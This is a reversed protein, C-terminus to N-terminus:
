WQDQLNLIYQKYKQEYTKNLKINEKYLVDSFKAKLTKYSGPKNKNRNIIDKATEAKRQNDTKRQREANEAELLRVLIKDQRKILNETLNNNILDNPNQELLKNIQNLQRVADPHLDGNMLESLKQRFKEYQAISKAIEKNLQKSGKGGKGQKKLESIMRQLQQKLSEMSKQMQSIKSGPKAGPKNCSSNSQNPAKMQNVIAQILESILLDLNNASTMVFQQTTAAQRYNGNKLQEETRELKMKLNGLEDTIVNALQPIRQSIAFLSDSVVEFSEKLEHQKRILENTKSDRYYNLKRFQKMLNEQEMSFININEALQQLATLDETMQQMQQSKMMAQMQEALQKMNQANQRQQKSAKKNKGSQMQQKSQQMGQKIQEKQETFDDLKYPHQLESNKQKTEEYKKMADEFEKNLKEQEKLLKNKEEESKGAKETKQALEEQKKALEKLQESVKEVNKEEEFRKLIELNRDLEKSMEDFNTEAERAKEEFKKDENQQLLKQLEDLLKKMEDDMLKDMLKEIEKQKQVIDKQQQSLSNVLNNTQKYMRNIEEINRKLEQQKKNINELIKTKEWKSLNQTIQNQRLKEMERNIDNILNQSTLMKKEIEKQTATEISDLQKTDPKVFAFMISKTSKSGNIKDNDWVEFYYEVKKANAPLSSFDFSYEFSQPNLNKAIPLSITDGYNDYTYNFTLKEFGYDDKILGAFYYVTPKLSDTYQKVKIQPYKDPIVNIKYTAAKQNKIYRNFFYLNYNTTRKIQKEFTFINNGNKVATFKTSDFNFIVSDTDFLKLEWKIKSGEPVTLDGNGDEVSNKIGTYAPPYIYVKLSSLVPAPIVSIHYPKSYYNGSVFRFNIDNNLNHFTYSFTGSNEKQMYFENSGFQITVNEPIIDGVTQVKVTIDKGKVVSLSDNELVFSFPAPPTIYTDYKLVRKSGEKIIQPNYSLIVIFSSVAFAFIITAIKIIKRDIAESFKFPKLEETRKNIGAIVLERSYTETNKLEELELANILKDKIEPFHASIIKAAQKDSLTKGIGMLKILPIAIYFVFISLYLALSFYFLFTKVPVTFYNFYSLISVATFWLISIAAAYMVGRILLTTYYKRKFERLKEKLINGNELM